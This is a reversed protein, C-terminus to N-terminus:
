FGPKLFDKSIRAARKSEVFSLIDAVKKSKMHGFILMVTDDDLYSIRAAADEAPMSAYVKVMKKLQEKRDMHIKSCRESVEKSFTEARALLNDVEARLDVLRQEKVAIEREIKQLNKRKQEIDENLKLYEFSENESAPKAAGAKATAVYGSPLLCYFLFLLLFVVHKLVTSM